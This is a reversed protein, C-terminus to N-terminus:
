RYERRRRYESIAFIASAEGAGDGIATGSIVGAGEIIRAMMTERSGHQRPLAQPSRRRPPSLGGDALKRECQWSAPSPRQPNSILIGATATADDPAGYSSASPPRRRRPASLPTNEADNFYGM